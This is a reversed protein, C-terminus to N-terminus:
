FRAKPSPETVISPDLPPPPGPDGDDPVIGELPDEETAKVGDGSSGGEKEGAAGEAGAATKANSNSDSEANANAHDDGKGEEGGSANTASTSLAAARWGRSGRCSSSSNERRAASPLTVGIGPTLAPLAAQTAGRPAWGRSVLPPPLANTM